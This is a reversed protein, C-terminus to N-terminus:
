TNASRKVGFGLRVGTVSAYHLFFIGERCAISYAGKKRTYFFFLCFVLSSGGFFASLLRNNLDGGGGGGDREREPERAGKKRIYVVRALFISVPM